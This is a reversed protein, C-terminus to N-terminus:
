VSIFESSVIVELGNSSAWEDISNFIDRELKPVSGRQYTVKVYPTSLNNGELANETERSSKADYFVTLEYGKQTGNKMIQGSTKTNELLEVLERVEKSESQKQPKLRKRQKGRPRKISKVRGFDDTKVFKKLERKSISHSFDSYLESKAKELIRDALDSTQGISVAM